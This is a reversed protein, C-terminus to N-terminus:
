RDEELARIVNDWRSQPCSQYGVPDQGIRDSDKSGRRGKRTGGAGRPHIKAMRRIFARAYKQDYYIRAHDDTDSMQRSRWEEVTQRHKIAHLKHRFALQPRKIGRRLYEM